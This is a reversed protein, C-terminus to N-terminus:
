AFKFQGVFTETYLEVKWVFESLLFLFEQESVRNHRRFRRSTGAGRRKSSRTEGTNAIEGKCSVVLFKATSAGFSSKNALIQKKEDADGFRQRAM